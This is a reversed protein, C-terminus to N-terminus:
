LGQEEHEVQQKLAQKLAELRQKNRKGIIRMTSRQEGETMKEWNTIRSITGDQNVVMPGLHDLSVSTGDGSLDLQRAENNSAVEPLALPRSLVAAAQSSQTTSVHSSESEQSLKQPSSSMNLLRSQSTAITPFIASLHSWPTYPAARRAFQQMQLSPPPFPFVGGQQIYIAVLCTLFAFIVTVLNFGTRRSTNERRTKTM